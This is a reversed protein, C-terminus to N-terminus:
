LHFARRAKEKFTIDTSRLSPLRDQKSPIFVEDSYAQSDGVTIGEIGIYDTDRNTEVTASLGLKALRRLFETEIEDEKYRNSFTLTLNDGFSVAGCRAGNVLGPGTYFFCREIHEKMDEPVNIPGLNSLLATTSYEAGFSFSVKVATNKLALPIFKLAKTQLKM